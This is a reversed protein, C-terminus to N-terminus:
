FYDQCPTASESIAVPQHPLALNELAVDPFNALSVLFRLLSALLAFIANLTLATV